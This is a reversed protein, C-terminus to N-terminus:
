GKTRELIRSGELQEAQVDDDEEFMQRIEVHGKWTPWHVRHLEMFTRAEQLAEDRSALNFITFGGIVEKSETFPGDTTLIEGNVIRMRAGSATPKLGGFSVLKGSKSTEEALKGVAEYLSTPPSGSEAHSEPGSVIFMYRM